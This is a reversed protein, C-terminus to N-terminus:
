GNHINLLTSHAFEMNNRIM